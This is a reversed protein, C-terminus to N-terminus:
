TAETSKSKRLEEKMADRWILEKKETTTQDWARSCLRLADTFAILWDGSFQTEAIMKSIGVEYSYSVKEGEIEISLKM